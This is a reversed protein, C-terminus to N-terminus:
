HCQKLVIVKDRGYEQELDYALKLCEYSQNGRDIFDGLLVLKNDGELLPRIQEIRKVFLEYQGHIDSMAYIM